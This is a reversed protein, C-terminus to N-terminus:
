WPTWMASAHAVGDYYWALGVPWRMGIGHNKGIAMGHEDKLGVMCADLRVRVLPRGLIKEAERRLKDLEPTSWGTCGLPWEWYIDGGTRLTQLAMEVVYGNLHDLRDQLRVHEVALLRGKSAMGLIWIDRVQWACGYM